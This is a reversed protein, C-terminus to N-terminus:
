FHEKGNDQRNAIVRDEYYTAWLVNILGNVGPAKSVGSLDGYM